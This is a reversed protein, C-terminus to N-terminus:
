MLTTPDRENLARLIDGFSRPAPQNHAPPPPDATPRYRQTALHGLNLEAPLELVQYLPARFLILGKHELDHRARDLTTSNLGRLSTCIRRDGYYSVGDADAVACLFFYLAAEDPHLQALGGETVLRRDIWGFGTRPIQRRRDNSLIRKIPPAM